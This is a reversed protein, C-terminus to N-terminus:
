RRKYPGQSRSYPTTKSHYRRSGGRQSSSAGNSDRDKNYQYRHILPVTPGGTQIQNLQLDDESTHELTKLKMEIARIAEEKSIKGERQGTGM